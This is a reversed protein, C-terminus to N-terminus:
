RSIATRLGDWWIIKWEAGQRELLFFLPVTPKVSGPDQQVVDVQVHTGDLHYVNSMGYVMSEIMGGLPGILDGAEFLANRTDESTITKESQSSLRRTMAPIDSLHELNARDRARVAILFRMVTDVIETDTANREYRHNKSETETGPLFNLVLADQGLCLYVVGDDSILFYPSVSAGGPTGGVDVRYKIDTEPLYDNLEVEGASLRANSTQARQDIIPISYRNGASWDLAQISILLSWFTLRDMSFTQTNNEEQNSDVVRRMYTDPGIRNYQLQSRNDGLRRDITYNLLRYNSDTEFRSRENLKFNYFSLYLERHVSFSGDDRKDVQFRMWGVNYNGLFIGYWQDFPARRAIHELLKSESSQVPEVADARVEPTASFALVPLVLVFFLWRMGNHIVRTYKQESAARVSRQLRIM